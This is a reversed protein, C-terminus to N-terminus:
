RNIGAARLAARIQNAVDPKLGPLQDVLRRVARVLHETAAAPTLGYGSVWSIGKWDAKWWDQGAAPRHLHALALAPLTTPQLDAEGPYLPLEFYARAITTPRAVGDQAESVVRTEFSAIPHTVGARGVRRAVYWGFTQWYGDNLGALRKGIDVDGREISFQDALDVVLEVDWVDPLPPLLCIDFERATAIAPLRTWVRPNDALYENLVFARAFVVRPPLAAPADCPHQTCVALVPAELLLGTAADRYAYSVDRFVDGMGLHWGPPPDTWYWARALEVPSL